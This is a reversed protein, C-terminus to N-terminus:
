FMSAELPFHANWGQPPEEVKKAQDLSIYYYGESGYKARLNWRDTVRACLAHEFLYWPHIEGFSYHYLSTCNSQIQRFQEASLYRNSYHLVDFITQPTITKAKLNEILMKLQEDNVHPLSSWPTEM